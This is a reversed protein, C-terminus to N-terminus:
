KTVARSASFTSKRVGLILLSISFVTAGISILKALEIIKDILSFDVWYAAAPNLIFIVFGMLTSAVVIKILLAV